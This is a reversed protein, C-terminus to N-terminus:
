QIDGKFLRYDVLPNRGKALKRDEAKSYMKMRQVYRRRELDVRPEMPQPIHAKIWSPGGSAKLLGVSRLEAKDTESKVLVVDDISPSFPDINHCRLCLRHDRLYRFGTQGCDHCRDRAPNIVAKGVLQWPLLAYYTHCSGTGHCAVMRGWSILCSRYCFWCRVREGHKLNYSDHAALLTLDAQELARDLWPVKYSLKSVRGM